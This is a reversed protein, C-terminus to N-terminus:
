VMRSYKSDLPDRANPTAKKKMEFDSPIYVSQALSPVHFIGPMEQFNNGSRNEGPYQYIAETPPNASRLNINTMYDVDPKVPINGWPANKLFAEGTYLGGNLKPPPISSSM